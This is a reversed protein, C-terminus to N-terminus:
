QGSSDIIPENPADVISQPQKVIDQNSIRKAEIETVERIYETPHMVAIGSNEARTEVIEKTQLNMLQETYPYYGKVIGILSTERMAKTNNVSIIEPRTIVPSGSNGPFNQIDLLIYHTRDVDRPLLRAICGMRCIPVNSDNVALGMPYGLMYVITGPGGGHEIIENSSIANHTLDFSSADLGNDIIIKWPLHLAAIDIEPNPHVSYDMHEPGSLVCRFSVLDESNKKKIRIYLHDKGEIVHKNTVLMCCHQDDYVRQRIIFGTGIWSISHDNQNEQGISVVANLYSDPIIAM